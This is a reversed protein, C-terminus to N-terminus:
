VLWNKIYKKWLPGFSLLYVFNGLLLYTITLSGHPALPGNLGYYTETILFGFGISCFYALVWFSFVKLITFSGHQFLSKEDRQAHRLIMTFVYINMITYPLFWFLDYIINISIISTIKSFLNDGRIQFFLHNKLTHPYGIYILDNALSFFIKLYM